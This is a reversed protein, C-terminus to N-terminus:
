QEVLYLPRSSAIHFRDVRLIEIDFSMIAQVKKRKSGTEPKATTSSLCRLVGFTKQFARGYLFQCDAEVSLDAINM